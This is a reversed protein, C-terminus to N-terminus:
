QLIGAHLQVTFFYCVLSLKFSYHLIAVLSFDLIVISSFEFCLNLIVPIYFYKM